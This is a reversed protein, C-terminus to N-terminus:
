VFSFYLCLCPHHWLCLDQDLWVPNPSSPELPGPGLSDFGPSGSGLSGFLEVVFVEAVMVLFSRFLTTASIVVLKVDWCSAITSRIKVRKLSALFRL